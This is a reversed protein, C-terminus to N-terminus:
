VCRGYYTYDYGSIKASDSANFLRDAYKLAEEVKGEDTYNYFALRNWAANRPNKNLGYLAMYLSKQRKQSLYGAMAYNTIDVDQRKYVDLHTYSVPNSIDSVM